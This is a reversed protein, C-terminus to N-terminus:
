LTLPQHSSINSITHFDNQSYHDSCKYLKYLNNLYVPYNGNAFQHHSPMILFHYSYTKKMKKFFISNKKNILSYFLM